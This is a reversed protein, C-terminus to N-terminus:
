FVHKGIVSAILKRHATVIAYEKLQDIKIWVCQNLEIKQMHDNYFCNMHWIRHSFVHKRKKLKTCEINLTELFQPLRYFDKMLGDSDDKSLCIEDQHILVYTYVEIEQPAKSKKKVPYDCQNGNKYAECEEVLPCLMCMPNKPTCVIAGIEMLGQTVKSPNSGKMWLACIETVKKRTSLKTIDDDMAKVRTVVRFVNGDVAPQEKNFCISLIAGATYDGIGDITLIDELNDPFVGDFKDMITIAGQHLKRARNYYGLGQWLHLVDQIDAKALSAVTPWKNMWKIYYPIMSDIRTQQAMIESVWVQYPDNNKRFPLDRHNLDYWSEIKESVKM